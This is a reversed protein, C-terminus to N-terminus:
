GGGKRVVLGISTAVYRSLELKLHPQEAGPLYPPLDIVRDLEAEGPHLNLPWCEHGAETLRTFLAEIDRKRFLSCEPREMTLTNSSLNFETTHVALGGPKLCDLSGAIFDLGHQLSGLHELACASWTLDFDRLDAPIANMDVPRHSVRQLFEALPLLRPRHLPRVDSSYQGAEAWGSSVQLDPPADTALVQLGHAALAAPLPETGTGFGLARLGPRLLGAAEIAALIFCFEWEKRHLRLPTRLGLLARLRAYDPELFQAHTCLQSVPRVLSPTAHLFRIRRDAPPEALFAPAAYRRRQEASRKPPGPEMDLAPLPRLRALWDGARRSWARPLAALGRPEGAQRGLQRLVRRFDRAHPTRGIDTLGTAPRRHWLIFVANALVPVALRPLERCFPLDAATLWGKHLVLWHWGGGPLLREECPGLGPLDHFEPPALMRDGPTLHAALFRAVQQWNADERVVRPVPAEVPPPAETPTAIAQPM